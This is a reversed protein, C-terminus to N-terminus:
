RTEDVAERVEPVLTSSYSPKNTMLAAAFAWMRVFAVRQLSKLQRSALRGKVELLDDVMEQIEDGFRM